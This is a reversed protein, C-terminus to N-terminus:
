KPEDSPSAASELRDLESLRRQAQEVLGSIGAEEAAALAEGYRKRAREIARRDSGYKLFNDATELLHWIDEPSKM